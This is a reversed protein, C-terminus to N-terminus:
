PQDTRIAATEQDRLAKKKRLSEEPFRQIADNLVSYGKEPQDTGFYFDSLAEAFRAETPFAVRCQNALQIAQDTKGAFFYTWCLFYPADSRLPAAEYAAKLHVEANAYDKLFYEGYGLFYLSRSAEPFAKACEQMVAVGESFKQQNYLLQALEIRANYVLPSISIAKRYREIAEDPYPVKRKEADKALAGALYYNARACGELQPMDSRFLTLNSKWVRERSITKGAWVVAIVGFVVGIWMPLGLWLRKQLFAWQKPLWENIKLSIWAIMVLVFIGPVLMFREAMFDPLTALVHFYLFATALFGALAFAPLRNKKWNRISLWLWIFLIGQGMCGLPDGYVPTPFVGMGYYYRLPWPWVLVKLYHVPVAFGVFIKQGREMWGIAPNGLRPSEHFLGAGETVAQGHPMAVQLIFLIASIGMVVTILSDTIQHKRNASPDLWIILFLVAAMSFASEKSLLSLALLSATSVLNIWKRSARWQLFYLIAMLGFLLAFLEDRSKINAVAEVHIPHVTFLLTALLPLWAPQRPFIQTLVKLLLMCILGYILANLLHSIHPNLGFLTYELAFSTLVVPRYGYKDKLQDSFHPTWIETLNGIGQQIRPNETIVIADDWAYDNSISPLFLVFGLIGMVWGLKRSSITPSSTPATLDM